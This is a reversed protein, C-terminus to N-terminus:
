IAEQLALLIHHMAITDQKCYKLLDKKIQNNEPNQPDALMKEYQISAIDGSQIDLSSYSFGQVLAPLVKKISYSGKMAATYYYKNKFIDMLDTLRDIIQEIQLQYEPFWTACQELISKEFGQNYVIISGTNGLTDILLETFERRPDYSSDGLFEKHALDSLNFEKIHVSFQFPIKQFPRTGEYIPIAPAFTEFDMFYLPYELTKLFSLIKEKNLITENNQDCKIQEIQNPSFISLDKIQNTEIIGSHFLNWAKEKSINSIDFVSYDPVDNWCYEKFDCVYPENCHPGIAVSPMQKVALTYKLEKIKEPISEILPIIQDKVSEIIFFQDPIIEEELRYQNNLYVISFDVPEYGSEKMIYYQLAADHLHEEKVKTSSKVEYAYLKNEKQVLIDLASLTEAYQFAAEYIVEVNAQIWESTKRISPRYDWFNKPTADLGNPFLTQALLGIRHGREFAALTSQDATSQLEKHYKNLWLSKLCKQGRLFTSKSLVHRPSKM